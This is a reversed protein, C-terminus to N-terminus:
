PTASGGTATSRSTASRPARPQRASGQAGLPARPVGRAPDRRWEHVRVAAPRAHGDRCGAFGPDVFTNDENSPYGEPNMGIADVGYADYGVRRAHEVALLGLLRLGCGRPRPPDPGAVTLPHNITWSRPAWQDEPVFLTPMLAEFMSGGWGPVLLATTPTRVRSCPRRGVTRATSASPSRRRGAGTVPTPSRGGRESTSRRRCSARRSASTAHRDPERQRDHRLLVPHQGHRSSTSRSGTSRQGTTSASTWATSSPRRADAVEPVASAVVHLGTALWGNDVSSLIPSRRAPRRGATLKAGTNHDYWNYYQGDPQHREMTELSHSRGTSARSPRPTASSGSGSPSSRAGCTPASTRRRPRSARRGTPRCATPRCGPRRPRDHRRVIGVHRPRLAAAHRTQGAKSRRGRRM